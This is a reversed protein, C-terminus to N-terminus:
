ICDKTTSCQSNEDQANETKCAHNIQPNKKDHKCRASEHETRMNNSDVFVADMSFKEQTEHEM